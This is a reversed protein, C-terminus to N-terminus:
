RDWQRPPVQAPPMWNRTISEEPRPFSPDHCTDDNAALGNTPLPRTQTVTWLHSIPHRGLARDRYRYPIPMAHLFVKASSYAFTPVSGAQSLDPVRNLAMDLSLSLNLKEPQKPM